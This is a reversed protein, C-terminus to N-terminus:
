TVFHWRDDAPFASIGDLAGGLASPLAPAVHYPEVGPYSEAFAADISDWGPADPADATM